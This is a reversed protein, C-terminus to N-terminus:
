SCGGKLTEHRTYRTGLWLRYEAEYHRIRRWARVKLRTPAKPHNALWDRWFNLMNAARVEPEVPPPAPARDITLQTPPAAGHCIGCVRDARIEVGHPCASTRSLAPIPWLPEICKLRNHGRFTSNDALKV